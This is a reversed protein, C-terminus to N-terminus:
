GSAFPVSVTSGHREVLAIERKAARVDLNPRWKMSFDDGM